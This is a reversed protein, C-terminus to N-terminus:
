LTKLYEIIEFESIVAALLYEDGNDIDLNISDSNFAVVTIIALAGVGLISLVSVIASIWGM